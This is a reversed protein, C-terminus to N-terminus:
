RDLMTILHVNSKHNSILKNRMHERNFQKNIAVRHFAHHAFRVLQTGCINNNNTIFFLLSVFNSKLVHLAAQQPLPLRDKITELILMLREVGIAAGVSPEDQKGGIQRVLQDYRGGACFANQAGLANSVFEFVTKSYYDLGRVLRPQHVYSVSLMTLWDQLQQWELACCSCLVDTTCPAKAYLEQCAPNKCDFIRLLNKHTRDTCTACIKSMIAPTLFARVAHEYQKRDASCGLYNILLAYDNITLVEHFLRDLMTILHVDQAVTAAGILEFSIQHFQRFRGKQPREYRFMPGFTFVKWPAQQVGNEVFARVTSATAEPRLCVHENEDRMAVTFMEKSVVDTFEGLSRTFLETPEILPTAIETYHHRSAHARVCTLVFNLLTLDLFDQTGKVRSIM